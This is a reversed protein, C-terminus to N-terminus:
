IFAGVLHRSVHRILPPIVPALVAYTARGKGEESRSAAWMDGKLVPTISCTNLCTERM